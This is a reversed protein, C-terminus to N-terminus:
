VIFQAVVQEWVFRFLADPSPTSGRLRYQVLQEGTTLLATVLGHDDHTLPRLRVNPGSLFRERTARPSVGAGVNLYHYLDGLTRLEPVLDEPLSVEHEDFLALAELLDISDWGLDDRLLSDMTFPQCGSKTHRGIISRFEDLSVADSATSPDDLRIVLEGCSLVLQILTSGAHVGVM